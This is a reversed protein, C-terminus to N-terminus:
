LALFLFIQLGDNAIGLLVGGVFIVVFGVIALKTLYPWLRTSHYNSASRWAGVLTLFIYSISLILAVPMVLRGFYGLAFKIIGLILLVLSIEVLGGVFHGWFARRLPYEGLWMKLLMTKNASETVMANMDQAEGM